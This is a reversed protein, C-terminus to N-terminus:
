PLLTELGLAPSRALDQVGRIALLVGPLYASRDTVTHRVALMEGEGGLTVGHEAVPAGPLRLSHVPTDEGLSARLSVATGSPADRKHQPHLDVIEAKGFLGRAQGAWRALLAAGVSFNPVVLVNARTSEPIAAVDVGSTGVVIDVGAQRCLRINERAAEAHTFDVVVDTDRARLIDRLGTGRRPDARGQLVLGDEEEVASAVLRGMRGEAGAVCVRIM